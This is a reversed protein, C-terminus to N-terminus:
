ARPAAAATEAFRREIEALFADALRAFGAEDVRIEDGPAYGLVTDAPRMRITKDVGMAGGNEVLSSAIVRVENIPNGDKGEIARGRHVFAHDLVVVMSNFFAPEFAALAAGAGDASGVAAALERYRAVDADVRARTRDIEEQSYTSRSLM